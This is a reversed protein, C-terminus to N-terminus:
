KLSPITITALEKGDHDIVSIKEGALSLCALMKGQDDSLYVRGQKPLAAKLMLLLAFTNM